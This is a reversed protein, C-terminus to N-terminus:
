NADQNVTITKIVGKYVFGILINRAKGSANNAISVRFECLGNDDTNCNVPIFNTNSALHEPTFLIPTIQGGKIPVNESNKLSLKMVIQTPTSPINTRATIQLIEALYDQRIEWVKRLDEYNLLVHVINEVGSHADINLTANFHGNADTQTTQSTNNQSNTFRVTENAVASGNNTLKGYYYVSGGTISVKQSFAIPEIDYPSQINTNSQSVEILKTANKYTFLIPIKRTQSITNEGVVLSIKIQGSDDTSVQADRQGGVTAYPVLIQYRVRENASIPNNNTKVIAVIDKTDGNAFVEPINPVEIEYSNVDDQSLQNIIWTDNANAHSIVVHIDRPRNTSNQTTNLTITFYGENDTTVIPTPTAILGTQAIQYNITQNAVNQGKLQGIYTINRADRPANEQKYLSTITYDSNKGAQTVNAFAITNAHTFAVTSERQTAFTNEAITLPLIFTGDANTTVSGVATSSVLASNIVQYNISENAVAQNQSNKVYGFLRVIGGQSTVAEEAKPITITISQTTEQNAQNITWTDQANEHKIIITIDRPSNQANQTTTLLISFYGENDTTVTSQSPTSVANPQMVTYGITKNRVNEGNLKGYYRLEQAQRPATTPKYLSTITYNLNKAAQVVKVPIQANSYTFVVISEKQTALLNERFTLPLTFSGNENTTVKGLPASSVLTEDLIQYDIQTNAVVQNQSNKLWGVFNVSGGIQPVVKESELSTLTFTGTNEQNAQNITWRDNATQHKIIVHINRPSSQSNQTTTLLITFYGASDTTVSSIAPANVANTELVQYDIIKNAVSQGKLQGIYSISQPQKPANEQKFVSAISLDLSKAAQKVNISALANAYSFVIITDREKTELNQTFTLPLIFNGNQDTRVSSSAANSVLSSNLVKYNINTDIVAQNKSNRLSGFFSVTNVGQSVQKESELTSLVYTDAVEQSLQNISWTDSQTKYSIIIDVKRASNTTNELIAENIQFNGDNNTSVHKTIPAVNPYMVTYDIQENAVGTTGNLLTGYYLVNGGNKIVDNQSKYINKIIFPTNEPRKAQTTKWILIEGAYSFGVQITRDEQTQNQNAILKLSFIGSSDTQLTGQKKVDQVFDQTYVTYTVNANALPKSDKLIQGIYNIEQSAFSINSKGSEPSIPKMNSTGGGTDNEGNSVPELICPITAKQLNNSFKYEIDINCTRSKSNFPLTMVFSYPVDINDVTAFGDTNTPVTKSTGLAVSSSTQGTRVTAKILEVPALPVSPNKWKVNLTGNFIYNAGDSGVSGSAKIVENSSASAVSGGGGGGCGAIFFAISILLSIGLGKM